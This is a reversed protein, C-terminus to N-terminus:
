MQCCVLRANGALYVGSADARRELEGRLADTLRRRAEPTLAELMRGEPLHAFWALV